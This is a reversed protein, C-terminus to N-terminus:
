REQIRKRAIECPPDPLPQVCSSSELFRKYEVRAQSTLNLLDLLTAIRFIVLDDSEGEEEAKRLEGLSETWYGSEYLEIGLLKRTHPDDQELLAARYQAITEARNGRLKSHEARALHFDVGQNQQRLYVGVGALVLLAYVLPALLKWGLQRHTIDRRFLLVILYLPLVIPTLFFSALAWLLSFLFSFRKRASAFVLTSLLASLVLVAPRILEFLEGASITIRPIV